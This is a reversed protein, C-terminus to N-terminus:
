LLSYMRQTYIWQKIDEIVDFRKSFFLFHDEDPYYKVDVHIGNHQFDSVTREIYLKPIRADQSGHIIFIPRGKWGQIFEPSTLIQREM